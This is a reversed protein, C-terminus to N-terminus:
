QFPAIIKRISKGLLDFLGVVLLLSLGPFFALWWMGTSLYRISESLIIGVAPEEPSLGFGLFTITAEHLIAHPFLLVFGVLLQPILIPLYHHYTIWFTSKGLNRSIHVYPTDKIQLLEARLLRALSPWHTFALGIVIAKLGGGLSFAILLLTVIHPLSLFLDILWTVITDLTKSLTALLSLLLAIITSSFTALVGVWFSLQLGKLTRALMDRGLWDTGFPHSFSPSSNRSELQIALKDPGILFGGTVLLTLLSASLLILVLTQRRLNWKNKSPPFYKFDEMKQVSM